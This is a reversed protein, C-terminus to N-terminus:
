ICTFQLDHWCKCFHQLCDLLSSPFLHPLTNVLETKSLTCLHWSCEVAATGLCNSIQSTWPNVSCHIYLVYQGVIMKRFLMSHIHFTKRLIDGHKKFNNHHNKQGTPSYDSILKGPPEATFFRGALAPSLPNIGPDPLDGVLGSWYEQRSFEMSLPVQHAITWPTAFAVLWCYCCDSILFYFEAQRSAQCCNPM